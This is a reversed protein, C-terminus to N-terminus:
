IYQGDANKVNYARLGSVNSNAHNVGADSVTIAYRDITGDSVIQGNNITVNVAYASANATFPAFAKGSVEDVVLYTGDWSSPASTVKVYASTTPESSSLIKLTVTATARNYKDTEAATAKIVTTGAANIIINSGSISAVNTNSSEYTVTTKAGTVTPLPYSGGIAYGSGITWSFESTGFSITQDTKTPDGGPVDEPEGLRYLSVSADAYAESEDNVYNFTGGTYCFRKQSQGYSSSIVVKEGSIALTNYYTHGGSVASDFLFGSSFGYMYKGLITKIDYKGAGTASTTVTVQNEVLAPMAAIKGDVIEVPTRYNDKNEGFAVLNAEDVILYTGEWSDPTATLKYYYDPTDVPIQSESEPWPDTTHISDFSCNIQKRYGSYFSTTEKPEILRYFVVEKGKSSATIKVKLKDGASLIVPLMGVYFEATSDKDIAQGDNVTLTIKTSAGDKAVWAPDDVTVDSCFNGSIYKSCSFEINQVVIPDDATNKVVFRAISLLNTMSISINNVGVVRTQKGYLPFDPGALHAPSTNGDQVPTENIRINFEKPTLISESYPYFAYFNNMDGYDEIRGKFRAGQLDNAYKFKSPYYGTGGLPFTLLTLDDGDTWSILTGNTVTKTQDMTVSITVDSANRAPGMSFKERSCSAVIFSLLAILGAWLIMKASKTM